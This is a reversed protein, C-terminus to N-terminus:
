FTLRAGRSHLKVVQQTGNVIPAFFFFFFFAFLFFVFSLCTQIALDSFVINRQGESGPPIVVSLTTYSPRVFTVELTYIPTSGNQSIVLLSCVWCDQRAASRSEANCSLFLQM